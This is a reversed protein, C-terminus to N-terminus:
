VARGAARAGLNCCQIIQQRLSAHLRDLNRLSAGSLVTQRGSRTLRDGRVVGCAKEKRAEIMDDFVVVQSPRQGDDYFAFARRQPAPGQPDSVRLLPCTGSVIGGHTFKGQPMIGHRHILSLRRVRSGHRWGAVFYRILPQIFKPLDVFLRIALLDGNLLRSFHRVAEEREVSEQLLRQRVRRRRTRWQM